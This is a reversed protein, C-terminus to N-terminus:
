ESHCTHVNQTAIGCEVMGAMVVDYWVRFHDATTWKARDIELRTQSKLKIGWRKRFSYYWSYQVEKDKFQDALSTGKLLFNAAGLLLSKGAKLKLLRLKQVFEVLQLEYRRPIRTDKGPKPPTVITTSSDERDKVRNNLTAHSVSVGVNQLIRSALRGDKPLEGEAMRALAWKVGERYMGVTGHSGYDNNDGPRDCKAALEEKLEALQNDSWGSLGPKGCTAGSLASPLEPPPLKGLEVEGLVGSDRMEAEYKHFLQPSVGYAEAANKKTSFACKTGPSHYARVALIAQTQGAGRGFRRKKQPSQSSSSELLTDPQGTVDDVSAQSDEGPPDTAEM